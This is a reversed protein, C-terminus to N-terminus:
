FVVKVGGEFWAPSHRAVSEPMAVGGEAAIKALTVILVEVRSSKKPYANKRESVAQSGLAASGSDEEM